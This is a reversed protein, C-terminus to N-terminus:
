FRAITLYYTVGLIAFFAAIPDLRSRETEEEMDDRSFDMPVIPLDRTNWELSNIRERKYRGTDPHDLEFIRINKNSNRFAFTDM